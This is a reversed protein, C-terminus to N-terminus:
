GLEKTHYSKGWDKYAETYAEMKLIHNEGGGGFSRPYNLNGTLITHREGVLLKHHRLRFKIKIRIALDRSLLTPPHALFSEHKKMETM